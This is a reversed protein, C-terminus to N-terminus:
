AFNRDIIGIFM